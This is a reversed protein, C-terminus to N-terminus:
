CPKHLFEDSYITILYLTAGMIACGQEGGGTGPIEGKKAYGNQKIHSYASRSSGSVRAHCPPASAHRPSNRARGPL